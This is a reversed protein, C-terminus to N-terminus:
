ICSWMSRASGHFLLIGLWYRFAVVFEQGSSTLGLPESPIAWLWASACSHHSIACLRVQDQVSCSDLLLSFRSLDVSHQFVSQAKSPHDVPPLSVGFLSSWCTTASSHLPFLHQFRFLLGTISYVSEVTHLSVKSPPFM